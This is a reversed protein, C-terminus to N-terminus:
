QTAPAAELSEDTCYGRRVYSRAALGTAMETYVVLLRISACSEPSTSVLTNGCLIFFCLVVVTTARVRPLVLVRTVDKGSSQHGPRWATASVGAKYATGM